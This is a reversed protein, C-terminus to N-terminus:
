NLPLFVLFNVWWLWGKGTIYAVSLWICIKQNTIYLFGSIIYISHRAMTDWDNWFFIFLFERWERYNSGSQLGPFVTSNRNWETWNYCDQLLSVQHQQGPPQVPGLYLDTPQTLDWTEATCDRFRLEWNWTKKLERSIRQVATCDTM